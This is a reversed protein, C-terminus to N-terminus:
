TRQRALVSTIRWAVLTVVVDIPLLNAKVIHEQLAFFVIEPGYRFQANPNNLFLVVNLVSLALVLIITNLLPVYKQSKCWLSLSVGSAVLVVYYGIEILIVSKFLPVFAMVLLEALFAAVLVVLVKWTWFSARSEVPPQHSPEPPSFRTTRTLANAVSFGLMYTILAIALMTAFQALLPATWPCYLMSLLNIIGIVCLLTVVTKM